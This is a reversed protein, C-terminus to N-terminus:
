SAHPAAPTICIPTRCPPPPPPFFVQCPIAHNLPVPRPQAPQPLIQSTIAPRPAVPFPLALRLPLNHIYQSASHFFPLLLDCGRYQHSYLCSLIFSPTFRFAISCTFSISFVKFFSFVMHFLPLFTFIFFSLSLSFSLSLFLVHVPGPWTVMFTVHQTTNSLPVHAHFSLHCAPLHASSSVTLTCSPCTFPSPFLVDSIQIMIRRTNM